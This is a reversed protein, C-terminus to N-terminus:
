ATYVEMDNMMRQFRCIQIISHLEKIRRYGTSFYPLQSVEGYKHKPTQKEINIEPFSNVM